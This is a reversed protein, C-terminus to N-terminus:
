RRIEVPTGVPLLDYLELMESHKLSVCGLTWNIYKDVANEESPRTGHIGIGGGIRATAPIKGTSRLKQFKQKSEPNPYDLLLFRGWEAHHKKHIIRFSGEPTLRDGEMRKDDQSSSGFVVPYSALWEGDEYLHLEYDSKDIVVRLEGTTARGNLGADPSQRRYPGSVNAHTLTLLPLAVFSCLLLFTKEM